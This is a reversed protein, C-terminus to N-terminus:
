CTWTWNLYGSTFSLFSEILQGCEMFLNRSFILVIKQDDAYRLQGNKGIARASGLGPLNICSGDALRCMNLSYVLIFVSVVCIRLDYNYNVKELLFPIHLLVYYLLM